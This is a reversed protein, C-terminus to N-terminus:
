CKEGGEKPECTMHGCNPCEQCDEVLINSPYVSAHIHGCMRCEVMEAAWHVDM